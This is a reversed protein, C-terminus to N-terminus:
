ARSRIAPPAGRAGSAAERSSRREFWRINSPKDNQLSLTNHYDTTSGILNNSYSTHEKTLWEGKRYLEIQNCDGIQHNITVWGCRWTFWTAGATWDSRARLLRARQAREFFATPM